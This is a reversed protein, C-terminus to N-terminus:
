RRGGQLTIPLTDWNSSNARTNWQGFPEGMCGPKYGSAIRALERKTEWRQMTSRWREWEPPESPRSDCRTKRNHKCSSSHAGGKSSGPPHHVNEQPEEDGMSRNPEGDSKLSDFKSRFWSHAEELNQQSELSVEKMKQEAEDKAEAHEQNEGGAQCKDQMVHRLEREAELEGEQSSSLRRLERQLSLTESRFQQILESQEYNKKQYQDKLTKLIKLEGEMDANNPALQKLQTKQDRLRAKQNSVVKELESMKERLELNARSLDASRSSSDELAKRMESIERQSLRKVSDREKRMQLKMSELHESWRGIEARAEALEVERQTITNQHQDRARDLKAQLTSNALVAQELSQALKKNDLRAVVLAKHLTELMKNIKSHTTAMIDQLKEVEAQLKLRERVRDRRLSALEQEQGGLEKQVTETNHQLHSHSALVNELTQAVSGGGKDGHQEQLKDLQGRLTRSDRLAEDRAAVVSTVEGEKVQVAAQAQRLQAELKHCTTKLTSMESSVQTYKDELVSSLKHQQVSEVHTDRLAQLEEQLQDVRTQQHEMAVLKGMLRRNEEEQKQLTSSLTGAELKVKALQTELASRECELKTVVICMETKASDRDTRVVEGEKVASDLDGRLREITRELLERQTVVTEQAVTSSQLLQAHDVKLTELEMQLKVKASLAGKLEAQINRRAEELLLDQEHLQKAVRSREAKISAQHETQLKSKEVSLSRLASSLESCQSELQKNFVQQEGAAAPSTTCEAQGKLQECQEQLRHGRDKEEELGQRTAQGDSRLAHCDAQVTQAQRREKEVVREMEEVRQLLASHSKENQFSRASEQSMQDKLQLLKESMQVKVMKLEEAALAVDMKSATAVELAEGLRQVEERSEDRDLCAERRSARQEEDSEQQLASLQEKLRAACASLPVSTSLFYSVSRSVLGYCQRWLLGEGGPERLARHMKLPSAPRQIPDREVPELLSLAEPANAGASLPQIVSRSMAPSCPYLRPVADLHSYSAWMSCSM